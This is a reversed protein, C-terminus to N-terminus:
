GRWGEVVQGTVYGIDKLPDGLRLGPDAYYDIFLNVRPLKGSHRVSHRKRNNFDYARGAKMSLKRGDIKYEVGPPCILPVHIRHAVGAMRQGDVHPLIKAGPMLKVLALRTVIGRETKLPAIAQEVVPALADRFEEWERFQYVPGLDTEERAVPLFPAPERKTAKAWQLIIDELNAVGAANYRRDWEHRFLIAQSAAHNDSALVEQRFPNRTWAEEPLAKVFAAAERVDVPGLDRWPVGIDM